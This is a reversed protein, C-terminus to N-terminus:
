LFPKETSQRRFIGISANEDTEVCHFEHKAFVSDYCGEKLISNPLKHLPRYQHHAQGEVWFPANSVANYTCHLMTRPLDSQNADSGHLTNAHFFLVDGPEMECYILEQTALIKELRAPETCYDNGREIQDLRGMLHSKEVIQLCGNEKSSKDIAIACTLMQPFLCGDHYWFWYDQHFNVASNTHPQKRVIKSHWHYCETGLLAEVSDIIRSVRPFVGLLTNGLDTWTAVKFSRGLHDTVTTQSGKLEPDADCAQRLPAIEDLDFMGPIIVYGEAHYQAIQEPSLSYDQDLGERPSQLQRTDGVDIQTSM